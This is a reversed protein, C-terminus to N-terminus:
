LSEKAITSILGTSNTSFCCLVNFKKKNRGRLHHHKAVEEQLVRAVRQSRGAGKSEHGSNHEDKLRLVEDKGGCMM